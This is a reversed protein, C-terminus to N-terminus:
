AGTKTEVVGVARQATTTATLTHSHANYRAKLDAQDAKLREVDGVLQQLVRALNEVSAVLGEPTQLSM